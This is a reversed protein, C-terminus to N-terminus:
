REVGPGPVWPRHLPRAWDIIGQGALAKLAPPLDRLAAYISIAEKSRGLKEGVQQQNLGLEMLRRRELPFPIHGQYVFRIFRELDDDPVLTLGIASQM